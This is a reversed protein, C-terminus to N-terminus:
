GLLLARNEVALLLELFVGLRLVARHRGLQEILTVFVQDDRQQKPQQHKRDLGAVSAAPNNGPAECGSQFRTLKPSQLARHDAEQGQQQREAELHRDRPELRAPQQQDFLGVRDPGGAQTRTQEGLRIM